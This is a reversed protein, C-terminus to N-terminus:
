AAKPPALQVPVQSKRVASKWNRHSVLRQPVVVSTAQGRRAQDFVVREAHWGDTVFQVRNGFLESYMETLRELYIERGDADTLDEARAFANMNAVTERGLLVIVTADGGRPM